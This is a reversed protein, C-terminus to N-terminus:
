ETGLARGPDLRLARRAPVSVALLGTILLVLLAASFTFRDVPQVNYLFAGLVRAALAAGITGAIGGLLLMAAGHRIVLGGVSRPTAGLALRIAMERRRQSVFFAMVGYIGVGALGLALVAFVSLLLSGFRDTATQDRLAGDLTGTAYPALGPDLFAVDRRVIEILQAAPLAGRVLIDFADDTRQAFPFYLDPDDTPDGPTTRLQRQRVDGAVGIITLVTGGAIIRKGIPDSGAWLRRALTTSAIAVPLSGEHDAATFARGATIPIALLGFYDPTVSHRYYRIRDTEVEERRLTAATSNSRLPADTTLAVRTIGPREGLRALLLEAFRARAAAGYAVDPLELRAAVVSKGNFGTDVGTLERFSRVLLGAGILVVV